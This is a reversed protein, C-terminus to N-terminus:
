QNYIREISLALEQVLATHQTVSSPLEVVGVGILIILGTYIASLFLQITFSKESIYGIVLGPLSVLIFLPATPLVIFIRRTFLQERIMVLPSIADQYSPFARLGAFVAIYMLIISTTFSQLSSFLTGQSLLYACGLAIATNLFLPAYSIIFTRTITYRGEHYVHSTLDIETTKVDPTIWVSLVHAIEHLVVGPLLLYHLIILGNRYRSM